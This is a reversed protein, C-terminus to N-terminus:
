QATQRQRWDKLSIVRAEGPLETLYAAYNSRVFAVTNIELLTQSNTASVTQSGILFDKSEGLLNGRIKELEAGAGPNLSAPDLLGRHHLEAAIRIHYSWAEDRVARTEWPARVLKVTALDPPLSAVEGYQVPIWHLPQLEPDIGVVWRLVRLQECWVPVGSCEQITWGNSERTALDREEPEMLDWLGTERLHTNAWIRAGEANADSKGQLALLEASGRVALTALIRLRSILYAELEPNVREPEPAKAHLAESLLTPKPKLIHYLWNVSLSILMGVFVIWGSKRSKEDAATFTLLLPLLLVIILYALRAGTAFTSKVYARARKDSDSRQYAIWWNKCFRRFHSWVSKM